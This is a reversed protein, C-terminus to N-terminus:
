RPYGSVPLRRMKPAEAECGGCLVDIELHHGVVTGVAPILVKQLARELGPDRFEQVQGCSVCVVHHHHSARDLAYRPTGHEALKCLLGAQVLLRINRYVTARGIGKALLVLEEATVGASREALLQCIRRRPGTLRYGSDELREVLENM